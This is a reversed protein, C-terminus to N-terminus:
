RSTRELKEPTWAQFISVSSISCECIIWHWLWIDRQGTLLEKTSGDFHSVVLVTGSSVKDVVLRHATKLLRQGCFYISPHIILFYENVGKWFMTQLPKWQIVTASWPLTAFLFIDIRLSVILIFVNQELKNQHVYAVYLLLGLNYFREWVSSFLQFLVLELALVGRTRKM